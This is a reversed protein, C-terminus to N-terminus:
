MTVPTHSKGRGGAEQQSLLALHNLHKPGLWGQRLGLLELALAWRGWGQSDHGDPSHVLLDFNEM